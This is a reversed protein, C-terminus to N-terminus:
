NEVNPLAKKKRKKKRKKKEKKKRKKKKGSETDGEGKRASLLPYTATSTNKKKLM